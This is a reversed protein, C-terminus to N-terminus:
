LFSALTPSAMRLAAEVTVLDEDGGLQEVGVLAVVLRQAREVLAEIAEPELVDVQVQDVPRRRIAALVHLGPLREGLEM